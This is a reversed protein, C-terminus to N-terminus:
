RAWRIMPINRRGRRLIRRQVPLIWITFATFGHDLPPPPDTAAQCSVVLALCLAAVMSLARADCSKIQSMM